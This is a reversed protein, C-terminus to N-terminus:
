SDLLEERKQDFRATVLDEFEKGLHLRDNILEARVKKWLRQLDATKSCGNIKRYIAELRHSRLRDRNFEVMDKILQIHEPSFDNEEALEMLDAFVREIGAFSRQQRMRRQGKELSQEILGQLREHFADSLIKQYDETPYAHNRLKKLERHYLFKLQSIEKQERVRQLIAPIQLRDRFLPKVIGAEENPMLIIGLSARALRSLLRGDKLRHSPLNALEEAVAQYRLDIVSSLDHFDVVQPKGSDPCFRDLGRFSLILLKLWSAAELHQAVYELGYIRVSDHAWSLKDVMHRRAREELKMIAQHIAM